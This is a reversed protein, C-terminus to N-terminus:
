RKNWVHKPDLPMGDLGCGSISLRGHEIEHCRWCLSELNDILLRLEPFQEVPKKHHVVGFNGDTKIQIPVIKGLKFCRECFPNLKIKYARVKRWARDYGRSTSSERPYPNRM